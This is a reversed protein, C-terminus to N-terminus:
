RIATIYNIHGNESFSKNDINKQLEKSYIVKRPKPIIRKGLANMYELFIDQYAVNNSFSIKKNVMVKKMHEAIDHLIKSELYDNM